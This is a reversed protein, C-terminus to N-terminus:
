VCSESFPHASHSRQANTLRISNTHNTLLLTGAVLRFPPFFAFFSVCKFDLIQYKNPFSFSVFFYPPFPTSEFHLSLSRANHARKSCSVCM